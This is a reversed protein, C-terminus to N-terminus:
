EGIFGPVNARIVDYGGYPSKKMRLEAVGRHTVQAMSDAIVGSWEGELRVTAYEGDLACSLCQFKHFTFAAYSRYYSGILAKIDEISIRKGSPDFIEAETFGRIVDDEHREFLDWLFDEAGTKADYEDNPHFEEYIFCHRMGEIRIDDIEENMLETTIFQYLDEASVYAVCDVVLSHRSLLEVVDDLEAGLQERPIERLSKFSPFSLYERVTVQRANELQREFEEINSLWHSEVDSPLAPQHESFHAGYNEEIERKKAENLAKQIREQEDEFSLEHM